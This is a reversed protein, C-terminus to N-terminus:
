PVLLMPIKINHLLYAATSGLLINTFASHGKTGFVILDYSANDLAQNIEDKIVGKVEMYYFDKEFYQKALENIDKATNSDHKDDAVHLITIEAAPVRTALINKSALFIKECQASKDVCILIKM